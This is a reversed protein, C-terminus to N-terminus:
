AQQLYQSYIKTRLQRKEIASMTTTNLRRFINSVVKDAISDRSGRYKTVNVSYYTNDIKIIM